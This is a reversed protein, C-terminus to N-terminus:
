AALLRAGRAVDSVVAVPQALVAVAGYAARSRQGVHWASFNQAPQWPRVTGASGSFSAKSSGIRAPTCRAPKTDRWESSALVCGPRHVVQWVVPSNQSLQWARLPTSTPEPPAARVRRAPDPQAALAVIVARRRPAIRGDAGGAVGPAPSCSQM